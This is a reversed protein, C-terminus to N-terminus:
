KANRAAPLASPMTSAFGANDVNSIKDETM